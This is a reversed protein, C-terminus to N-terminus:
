EVESKITFQHKGRRRRRRRRWHYTAFSHRNKKQKEERNRRIKRRHTVFILYISFPRSFCQLILFSGGIKKTSYGGLDLVINIAGAPTFFAKPDAGLVSSFGRKELVNEKKGRGDTGDLPVFFRSRNNALFFNTIRMLRRRGFWTWNVIFLCNLRMSFAAPVHPLPRLLSPHTSLVIPSPLAGMM